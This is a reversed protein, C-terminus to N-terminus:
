ILVRETALARARDPALARPRTLTALLLTTTTGLHLALVLHPARNPSSKTTATTTRTHAPVLARIVEVEVVEMETSPRARDRDPARDRNLSSRIMGTRSLSKGLVIEVAEAVEVVVALKAPRMGPPLTPPRRAPAPLVSPPALDPIAEVAVAEAVAAPVAARAEAEAETAIKWVKKPSM